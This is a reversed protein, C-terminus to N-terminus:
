IQMIVVGNMPTYKLKKKKSKADLINYMYRKFLLTQSANPHSTKGHEALKIMKDNSFCVRTSVCTEGKFIVGHYKEDKENM